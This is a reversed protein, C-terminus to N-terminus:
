GYFGKFIKILLSQQKIKRPIFNVGQFKHKEVMKVFSEDVYVKTPMDPIKFLSKKIQGYFVPESIWSIKGDSDYIIKSKKENLICTDCFCPNLVYFAVGDTDKIPLLEVDFTKFDFLSCVKESVIPIYGLIFHFDAKKNGYDNLFRFEFTPWQNLLSSGWKSELLTECEKNIETFLFGDLISSIGWIPTSNM